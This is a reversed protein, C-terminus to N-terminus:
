LQFVDGKCLVSFQLSKETWSEATLFSQRVHQEVSILFIMVANKGTKSRSRPTTALNNQGSRSTCRFLEVVKPPFNKWFSEVTRFNLHSAKAGLNVKPLLISGFQKVNAAIHVRSLQIKVTFTRNKSYWCSNRAVKCSGSFFTWRTWYNMPCILFGECSM